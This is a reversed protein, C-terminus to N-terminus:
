RVRFSNAYPNSEVKPSDNDLQLTKNASFQQYLTNGLAYAALKREVPDKYNKDIFRVANNVTEQLGKDSKFANNFKIYESHGRMAEAAIKKIQMHPDPEKNFAKLKEFLQNATLDAHQKRIGKEGLIDNLKKDTEKAAKLKTTMGKIKENFELPKKIDQRSQRNFFGFGSPSVNSATNNFKENRDTNKM